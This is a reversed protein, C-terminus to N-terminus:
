KELKKLKPLKLTTAVPLNVEDNSTYRDILYKIRNKMQRYTFERSIRDKGKEAKLKQQKYNIYTHLLAGMAQKYDATFWMSEPIIVDKWQASKHPHELKGGLLIHEDGKLFDLHGSWNSTIIPKGTTAFELLPRGFGEGRTLSYLCKIKDHNYVENMEENTLNGYLLYVNPLEAGKHLDKIANIKNEIELKDKKSYAGGSIKLVLAPADESNKFAELFTNITMGMNKRDQGLDGQLWHGVVLFAFDEEISDLTEKVLGDKLKVPKYVKEDYGEFLTEVPKEVKLIGQHVNGVQKNFSSNLFVQKGHEASVFTADMRNVGEVWPVSCATTEIGATVGLNVKGYPLFENPVSVQVSVDIPFNIARENIIRDLIKKHNPNDEKLAGRPTEGWRRSVVHIDYEDKYVEIIARFLDLSRAGYGSFTDPPGFLVM